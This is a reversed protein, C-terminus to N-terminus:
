QDRSSHSTFLALALGYGIYCQLIRVDYQAKFISFGIKVKNLLLAEDKEKNIVTAKIIGTSGNSKVKSKLHTAKTIGQELLQDKTDQCELDIYAQNAFIVMTVTKEANEAGKKM